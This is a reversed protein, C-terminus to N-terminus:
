GDEIKLSITLLRLPIITIKRCSHNLSHDNPRLVSCTSVIKDELCAGFKWQLITGLFSCAPSIILSVTAAAQDGQPTPMDAIRNVGEIQSGTNGVTNSIV